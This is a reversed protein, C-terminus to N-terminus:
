VGGIRDESARVFRIVHVEHESEVVVYYVVFGDFVMRHARAGDVYPYRYPFQSLSHLMEMIRRRRAATKVKDEFCRNHNVAKCIQAKCIEDVIDEFETRESSPM